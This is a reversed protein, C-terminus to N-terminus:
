KKSRHEVTWEEICAIGFIAAVAIDALEAAFEDETDAHLADLLEKHEEAVAGYIEHTSAFSKDGDPEDMLELLKQKVKEVALAAREKSIKPREM